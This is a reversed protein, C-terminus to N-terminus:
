ICFPWACFADYAKAYVHQTETVGAAPVGKSCDGFSIPRKL